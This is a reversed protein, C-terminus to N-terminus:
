DNRSQLIQLLKKADGAFVAAVAAIEGAKASDCTHATENRANHYKMWQEVDTILRNEAVAKELGSLDLKM